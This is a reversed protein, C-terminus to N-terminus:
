LVKSRFPPKHGAPGTGNLERIKAQFVLEHMHDLETFAARQEAISVLSAEEEFGSVKEMTILCRSYRTTLTQM